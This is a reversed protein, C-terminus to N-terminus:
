NRAFAYRAPDGQGALRVALDHEIELRGGAFAGAFALNQIFESDFHVSDGALTYRGHDGWVGSPQAVGDITSTFHMEHRYTGDDALTLSGSSVIIRLQFDPTTGGPSILEDFVTGPLPQGGAQELAYQGAPTSPTTAGDGCATALVLLAFGLRSVVSM